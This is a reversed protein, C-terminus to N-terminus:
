GEFYDYFIPKKFLIEMLIIQKKFAIFSDHAPKHMWTQSRYSM